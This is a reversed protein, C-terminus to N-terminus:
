KQFFSFYVGTIIHALTLGPTSVLFIFGFIFGPRPISTVFSFPSMDQTLLVFCLYFLAIETLSSVYCMPSMGIFTSLEFINKFHQFTLAKVNQTSEM